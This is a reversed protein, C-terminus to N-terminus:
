SGGGYSNSGSAVDNNVTSQWDTGANANNNTANGASASQEKNTNTAKVKSDSESKAQQAKTADDAQTKSTALQKNM